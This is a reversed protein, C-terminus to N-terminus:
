LNNQKKLKFIKQTLIDISEARKNKNVPMCQIAMELIPMGESANVEVLIDLLQMAVNSVNRREQLKDADRGNAGWKIVKKLLKESVEDTDTIGFTLIVQKPKNISLSLHKGGSLLCYILTSNLNFYYEESTYRPDQGKSPPSTLSRQLLGTYLNFHYLGFDEKKFTSTQM